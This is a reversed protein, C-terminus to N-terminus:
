DAPPDTTAPESRDSDHPCDEGNKVVGFSIGSEPTFKAGPPPSQSCVKWNEHIIQRRGEGSDDSVAVADNVAGDTLDVIDRKASALDKGVEDPMTWLDSIPLQQSGSTDPAPRTTSPVAVSEQTTRVTTTPAAELQDDGKTDVLLSVVLAAVALIGVVIWVWWGGIHDLIRGPGHRDPAHQDPGM